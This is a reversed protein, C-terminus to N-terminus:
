VSQKEKQRDTVSQDEAMGSKWYSYAYLEQTTWGLDKRLYKRIEKVSSFEAAVYGFKAGEAPIQVAKVADALTSGEEPASNYIWHIDLQADTHLEQKDERGHVEIVATVRAKAPLGELIAGLVPIATADGALLYWDAEPYLAKKGAKMLVGLKDGEKANGAWASAPSTDGHYVFDTIMEEKEVDIGRHTYTRIIPRLHELPHAWQQQENDYEPFHIDEVGVPPILIKNNVGVTTDAFQMVHDGGLTVRIYHPTIYEKKKVRLVARLVGENKDAM